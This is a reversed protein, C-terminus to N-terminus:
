GGLHSKLFALTRAWADAAAGADYRYLYGDRNREGRMRASPGRDFRHYAGPYVVLEVPTGVSKLAAEMARANSLPIEDDAAGHLLLMPAKANPAHDIPLRIGPGVRINKAARVDFAGYYVVGAALRKDTAALSIAHAGLSFGVAGVKKDAVDPRKRLWDVVGSLQEEIAPSWLRDKVIELYNPALAVFGERALAEAYKEDAEEVQGYATHLVLVAPAPTAQPVFLVGTFSGGDVPITVSERTQASGDVAVAILTCSVALLLARM